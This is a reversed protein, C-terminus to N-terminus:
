KKASSNWSPAETESPSLVDSTRRGAPTPPLLYRGARPVLRSQRGRWQDLRQGARLTGTSRLLAARRPRNNRLTGHRGAAGDPL